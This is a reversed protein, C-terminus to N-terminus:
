VFEKLKQVIYSLEEQSLNPFSPLNIGRPSINETNPLYNGEELYVPMKHIPYFVPRTEIGSNSLKKRLEDRRSKDKILFCIMWYSSIFNEDLVDQFEIDLGNLEEKFFLFIEKKRRLINKINELQAVGVAASLNNLRYNYGVIDHWYEKNETLGQTKLKNVKYKISENNTAVMGGEGTTITKNGYFSFTAVDSYNGVHKNKIFTGIAEACDEILFINNRDAIEKIKPINSPFGYLHVVIIAKTRPTIKSKIDDVSAQWSQSECDVFIPNAGVYKICNVSAIYTLSPVIVEDDKGIGLSLLALHLAVTGNTVTLCHKIGTFNSFDNELKDIYKGKSSIWSSSLADNVYESENGNLFPKYVPIHM